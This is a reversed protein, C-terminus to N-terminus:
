KRFVPNRLSVLLSTVNPLTSLRKAEEQVLFLGLKSILIGADLKALFLDREVTYDIEGPVVGNQNAVETYENLGVVRRRTIDDSGERVLIPDFPIIPVIIDFPFKLIGAPHIQTSLRGQIIEASLAELYYTLPGYLKLINHKLVEFEKPFFSITDLISPDM